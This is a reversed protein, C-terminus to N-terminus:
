IICHNEINVPGNFCGLGTYSEHKMCTIVDGLHRDYIRIPVDLAEGLVYTRHWITPFLLIWNGCRGLTHVWHNHTLRLPGSTPGQLGIAAEPFELQLSHMWKSHHILLLSTHLNLNKNNTAHLRQEPSHKVHFLDM